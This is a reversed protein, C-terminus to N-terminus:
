REREYNAKIYALTDENLFWDVLGCRGCVRVRGEASMFLGLPIAAGHSRVEHTYFQSCGCHRCVKKDPEMAALSPVRPAIKGTPVRCRIGIRGEM